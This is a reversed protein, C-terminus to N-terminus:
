GDDEKIVLDTTNTFYNYRKEVTTNPDFDKFREKIRPMLVEDFEKNWLGHWNQKQYHVILVLKEIFPDIERYFEKRAQVWACEDSCIDEEWDGWRVEFNKDCIYCTLKIIEDPDYDSM